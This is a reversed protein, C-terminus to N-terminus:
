AQDLGVTPLISGFVVASDDQFADASTAIISPCLDSMLSRCTHDSKRCIRHDGACDANKQCEGQSGGGGGGGTGIGNIVEVKCGAGGLLLCAALMSPYFLAAKSHM